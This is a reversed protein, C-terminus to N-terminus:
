LAASGLYREVDENGYFLERLRAGKIKMKEEMERVERAGLPAKKVVKERAKLPKNGVGLNDRKVRTKLPYQIGEGQAGLGLRSDPDWGHSSLYQLGKRHRDLHSPPHSHTLCVQHALSAEHPKSLPDTSSAHAIPLACIPCTIVKTDTSPHPPPPPPPSLSQSSQEIPQNPSLVLSLYIDGISLHSHELTPVSSSLTPSSTARVFPIRKRKIGAGFVRQDQLPILYEDESETM